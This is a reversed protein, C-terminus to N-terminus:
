LGGIFEEANMNIPVLRDFDAQASEAILTSSASINFQHARIFCYELYIASIPEDNNNHMLMLLGIPRNFLESGLNIFTHDFGPQNKIDTLDGSARGTSIEQNPDNYVVDADIYHHFLAKMLSPGDFMVRSLSVQNITRGPIFYRRDSGIEFIQQLGKNQGIGVNDLLGIPYADLLRDLNVSTYSTGLNNNFEASAQALSPPGAAVLVSAGRVFSGGPDINSQVFKERFSWSSVKETGAAFKQQETKKTPM